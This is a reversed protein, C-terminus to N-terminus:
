RLTGEFPVRTSRVDLRPGLEYVNRYGYDYLAAFTSLNLSASPLKTALTEPAGTFNHNCYVLIRVGKDPILGALASATFDPFPLNVAGRVHLAAYMERSRADLVVTSRDRAMAIFAEEGVRRSERWAFAEHAIRLFRAPDIAPNALEEAGAGSAAGVALCSLVCLSSGRMNM